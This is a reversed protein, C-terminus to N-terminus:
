YQYRVTRGEFSADKDRPPILQTTGGPTHVTHFVPSSTAPSAKEPPPQIRFSSGAVAISDTSPNAHRPLLHHLDSASAYQHLSTSSPIQHLNTSSSINLSTSSMNSRLNSNSSTPHLNVASYSSSYGLGEKPRAYPDSYPSAHQGSSSPGNEESLLYMRSSSSGGTAETLITTSPAASAARPPPTQTQPEIPKFTFDHALGNAMVQTQTRQPQETKWGITSLVTYYWPRKAQFYNKQKTVPTEPVADLDIAFDNTPAQRSVRRPLSWVSTRPPETYGVPSYDNVVAARLGFISRSKAVSLPRPRNSLRFIHYRMSLFILLSGTIIVASLVIVVIIAPSLSGDLGDNETSCVRHM